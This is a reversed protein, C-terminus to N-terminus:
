DNIRNKMLLYVNSPTITYDKTYIIWDTIDDPTFWMIDGEHTNAVNYPEQTLKAKFRDDAFEILQFWIHELNDKDGEDIRLGIKIIIKNEKNEFQQKVFDFREIALSKMRSTEENSIFFIPNEGWLDNYISVKSRIKKEEDQESQYIFIVSTRSNHGDKRDKANGLKLNQYEQLAKTWSLCTVVVPKRNSLVGIYASNELPNFNENKDILYSAFTSILNYHNNYNQKDSQLIELETVGCRCLGHTHLWVEGSKDTVAQVIYLDNASPVIKSNATMEVWRTPLLREASEDLLALMDPIIAYAVKLQLHYSKKSDKGFAMYITLAKHANKLKELEDKEFHYATTLYYPNLEFYNPYFGIEYEEDEYNVKIYGPEKDSLEKQEVIKVDEISAVREVLGVMPNKLQNEPILVMYSKEEWYGLPAEQLNEKKNKNFFM